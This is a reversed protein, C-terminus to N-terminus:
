AGRWTSRHGRLDKAKDGLREKVLGLLEKADWLRNLEEEGVQQATNQLKNCVMIAYLTHYTPSPSTAGNGRCILRGRVNGWTRPCLLGSAAPEQLLQEGQVAGEVGRAVGAERARGECGQQVRAPEACVTGRFRLPNSPVKVPKDRMDM